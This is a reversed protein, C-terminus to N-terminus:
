LISLTVLGCVGKRAMKRRPQCNWIRTCLELLGKVSILGLAFHQSLHFHYNPTDMLLLQGFMRGATTCDKNSTIKKQCEMTKNTHRTFSFAQLAAEQKKPWKKCLLSCTHSCTCEILIGTQTWTGLGLQLSTKSRCPQVAVQRTVLHKQKRRRILFILCCCLFHMVCPRKPLVSFYLSSIFFVWFVSPLTLEDVM